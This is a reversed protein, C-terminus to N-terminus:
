GIPVKFEDVTVAKHFATEGPYRIMVDYVFTFKNGTVGKERLIDETLRAQDLSAYGSGGTAFGWGSILDKSYGEISFVDEYRYQETVLFGPQTSTHPSDDMSDQTLGDLIQKTSMLAVDVHVHEVYVEVGEGGPLAKILASFRLTKPKTIQWSDTDYSTSYSAIFDFKEGAITSTKDLTGGSLGNPLSELAKEAKTQASNGSPCATLLCCFALVLILM